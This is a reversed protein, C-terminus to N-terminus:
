DVRYHANPEAIRIFHMGGTRRVRGKLELMTLAANVQQAPLGLLARLDDVHMPDRGLHELISAEDPDVPLKTQLSRGVTIQELNLIELVEAPDLLPHAGSQILRNTGKSAHSYIGGPVAFVDRGQEAAFDATILAGSTEGAEVVIVGLSLGSILRNRPPFNRGEPETGLAYDTIVAGHLSIDKALSRHEPPYIRDLGSGLVAVTRGSADLTASHAEADIGRALGSIITVGRSALFSAIERTASIGYKTPRRTGVIAVAYRDPGTLAGWIYLVPPPTHVERLRQPYDDDLITVVSFGAQFIRELESELDTHERADLVADVLAANLGSARLDVPSAKWATALDGFTDILRAIRAAGIGQVRHFGVWYRLHDNM